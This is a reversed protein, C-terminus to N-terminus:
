PSEPEHVAPFENFLDRIFGSLGIYLAILVNVAIVVWEVAGYTSLALQTRFAFVILFTAISLFVLLRGHKWLWRPLTKAKPSRVSMVYFMMAPLIDTINYVPNLMEVLVKMGPAGGGRLGMLGVLVFLFIHRCLFFLSLILLWNPRLVNHINYRLYDYKFPKSTMGQNNKM